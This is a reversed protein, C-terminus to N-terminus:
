LGYQELFGCSSGHSFSFSIDFSFSHVDSLDFFFLCVFFEAKSANCVTVTNCILKTSRHLIKNDM